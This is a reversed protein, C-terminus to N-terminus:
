DRIRVFVRFSANEQGGVAAAAVEAKTWYWGDPVFDDAVAVVTEAATAWLVFLAEIVLRESARLIGVDQDDVVCQEERIEGNATSSSPQQRVVVHHDEVLGVSDFRDSSVMESEGDGATLEVESEVPEVVVALVAAQQHMVLM